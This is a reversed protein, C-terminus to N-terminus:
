KASAPCIGEHEKATYEHKIESQLSWFIGLFNHGSSRPACSKAYTISLLMNFM